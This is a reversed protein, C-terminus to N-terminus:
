AMEDGGINSLRQRRQTNNDNSTRERLVETFTGVEVSDLNSLPFYKCSNVFIGDRADRWTKCGM